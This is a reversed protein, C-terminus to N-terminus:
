KEKAEPYRKRQSQMRIHKTLQLINADLISLLLLDQNIFTFSFNCNFSSNKRQYTSPYILKQRSDVGTRDTTNQNTGSEILNKEGLQYYNTAALRKFNLVIYM